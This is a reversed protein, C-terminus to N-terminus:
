SAARCPARRRRGARRPGARARRRRHGAAAPRDLRGPLARRPHAPQHRVGRHRAAADSCALDHRALCAMLADSALRPGATLSEGFYVSLKCRARRDDCRGASRGARARDRGPRRADLRAPLRAAAGVRRGRRPAAGRGDLDLVDHLRRALGDRPRAARRRHGGLGTLLASCRVRRHPQRRVHGAPFDSPRRATVAARSPSARTRARGRRVVGVGIWALVGSMRLPPAPRRRDRAIAAALGVALSATAYASGSRACPRRPRPPDDRGPVDLVDDARRLLRDRGALRWYRTPAVM